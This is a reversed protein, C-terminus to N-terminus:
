DRGEGERKSSVVPEGTGGGDGVSEVAVEVTRRHGSKGVAVLEVRGFREGPDIPNKGGEGEGDDQEDACPTSAAAVAETTSQDILPLM